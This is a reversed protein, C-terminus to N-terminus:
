RRSSSRSVFVCMCSTSFYTLLYPLHNM